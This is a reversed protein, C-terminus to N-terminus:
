EAQPPSIVFWVLFEVELLDSPQEKTKCGGLFMMFEFLVFVNAPPLSRAQSETHLCRWGDVGLLMHCESFYFQGRYLFPCKNATQLGNEGTVSEDGSSM